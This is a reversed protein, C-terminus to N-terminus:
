TLNHFLFADAVSIDLECGRRDQSQTSLDNIKDPRIVLKDAPSSRPDLIRRVFLHLGLLYHM